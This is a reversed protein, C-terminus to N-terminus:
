KRKRRILLVACAIAILGPIVWYFFFKQIWVSDVSIQARNDLDEPRLTNAPFQGYSFTSLCWYGFYRDYRKPNDPLTQGGLFDADGIVFIRQDRGNITRELRVGEVFSGHEDTPLGSVKRQLSDPNVPALRNWSLDKDTYLLPTVRFGDKEQYDLANAGITSILFHTFSYYIGDYKLGRAFQPSLNKASDSLYPFVADSSYKSSPQILLGDRLSVGLMDLLPKTVEKRDPETTIFLNGGSRIYQNIRDLSGLSFPKRPDAIVLGAIKEPVPGARLSITDFDYGQNLLSHRYSILSTAATYDRPRESYPLRELEDGLFDIKPPDAILRNFGAAMNNEDPWFGLDDFTNVITKKGKYSLVMFTRWNEAKVDVQKLIEDPGVFRDVDVGFTEAEREAIEKISKGPNRKFPNNFPQSSDAYYYYVFQVNMDPKFRLYQDFLDNRINNQESPPTRDFHWELLSAYVTVKLEGDNLKALMAQTPPTITLRKGRTADFYVNIAPRSTIYGLVFCAAIVALYRMAKRWRSISETASKIRIITFLLFSTTIMLFYTFDRLNILGEIMNKARGGLNLYYTISRIINIDQWLGGIHFLLFFVGSTILAAVIQYTTLSSVFLGIAAFTGLVLFLGFLSAVLQGYDPHIISLCLGLLVIATLILLCGVFCIMALYKGWVIESIKIPSSYLLKITGSSTERSILGMTILPLFIFMDGMIQVLFGPFRPSTSIQSTLDHVSQLSWGGRESYTVFSDLLDIYNASTIVLFVIMLVWAIPSYFLSYLENRTIYLIKKM